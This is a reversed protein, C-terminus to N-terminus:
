ERAPHRSVYGTPSHLVFAQQFATRQAAFTLLNNPGRDPIGKCITLAKKVCFVAANIVLNAPNSTAM